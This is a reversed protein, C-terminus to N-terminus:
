GLLLGKTMATAVAQAQTNAGLRSFAQNLHYKVTSEKIQLRRAIQPKSFGEKILELVKVQQPTLLCSREKARISVLALYIYPAVASLLIRSEELDPNEFGAVSFLLDCRDPAVKFGISMGEQLMKYKKLSAIFQQQKKLLEPESRKEIEAFTSPWYQFQGLTEKNFNRLIVPDVCAFGKTFYELQWLKPFDNLNYYDKIEKGQNLNVLLASWTTFEISENLLKIMGVFDARSRCQNALAIFEGLKAWLDLSGKM